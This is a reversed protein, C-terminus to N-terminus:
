RDRTRKNLSGAVRTPNAYAPPPSEWQLDLQVRLHTDLIASLVLADNLADVPDREIASQLASKLWASVAQDALVDEVTLMPMLSETM